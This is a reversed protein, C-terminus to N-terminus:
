NDLFVEGGARTALAQILSQGAGASAPTTGAAYNLFRVSGDGMVFNAGDTHASWFSNVACNDNVRGARFLAPAPCQYSAGSSSTGTTYVLRDGGTVQFVAAAGTRTVPSLTNNDTPSNIPEDSDRVGVALSAAPPREGLMLTNSLGDTVERLTTPMPVYTGINATFTYRAHYRMMGDYEYIYEGSAPLNLAGARRGPTYKVVCVTPDGTSGSVGVYWTLPKGTNTGSGASVVPGRPDSPCVYLPSQATTGLANPQEVFPLVAETWGLYGTHSGAPAKVGTPLTQYADYSNLVALGFQKLNNQCKLRSAAERVKQVAPLLLGILVALIAVVVLVEILTFGSRGTGTRGNRM